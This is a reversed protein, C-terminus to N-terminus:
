ALTSEDGRQVREALGRDGRRAALALGMIVLATV